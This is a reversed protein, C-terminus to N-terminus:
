SDVADAPSNEKSRPFVYVATIPSSGCVVSADPSTCQCFMSGSPEYVIVSDWTSKECPVYAKTPRSAALTFQANTLSVM